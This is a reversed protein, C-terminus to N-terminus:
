GHNEGQLEEVFSSLTNVTKFRENQGSPIKIGFETELGVILELADVSDLGLGEGFLPQDDGIETPDIYLNLREVIMQKIRRKTDERLMEQSM